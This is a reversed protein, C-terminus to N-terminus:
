KKRPDNYTNWLFATRVYNKNYLYKQFTFQNKLGQKENLASNLPM